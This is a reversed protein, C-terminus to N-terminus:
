NNPLCTIMKLNTDYIRDAYSERDGVSEDLDRVYRKSLDFVGFSYYGDCIGDWGFNCHVKNVESRGVLERSLERGIKGDGPKFRTDYTVLWHNM